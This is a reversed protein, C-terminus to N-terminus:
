SLRSIRVTNQYFFSIPLSQSVQSYGINLNFPTHHPNSEAPESFLETIPEHLSLTGYIRPIQKSSCCGDAERSPEHGMM